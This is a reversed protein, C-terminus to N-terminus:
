AEKPATTFDPYRGLALLMVAGVVFLAGAGLLATDYSGTADRVAGYITPSIASGLGFPVYVLGYIRGYSAMGFYRASMFAIVDSEGGAAFGLMLAAVILLPLATATGMLMWCALAPLILMPVAVGPAWFRDFLLGVILRGGLIGFAMISIVTAATGAGYGHLQVIQAMHIYVGGYALAILLISVWLVYFRHGRLAQKLTLGAIRGSADAIGAPREEPRPERFWALGLPLGILLPLCALVLFAYRWGVNAITAQAIQPVAMGAISTGVLMLGLALGRNRAFWMSVARSWTVPTSGIAVLGLAVCLAYYGSLSGPMFFFAAFVLGFALTSLLAVPRVGYRDAAAGYVPALLAGIMGYIAIGLSLAAFDWGFEAHMPGMVLPITNFPIPSAGCAVGVMAATLPKGGRKFESM